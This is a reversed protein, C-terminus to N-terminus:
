LIRRKISLSLRIAFKRFLCSFRVLIMAPMLLVKTPPKVVALRMPANLAGGLSTKGFYM